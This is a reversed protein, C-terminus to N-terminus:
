RSLAMRPNRASRNGANGQEDAGEARKVCLSERLGCRGDGSGM